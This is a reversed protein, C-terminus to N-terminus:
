FGKRMAVWFRTSRSQGSLLDPKPGFPVAASASASLGHPGQWNLGVGASSLNASNDSSGTFTNNKNVLVYGDNVFVVAQWLGPLRFCFDHRLEMTVLMGEDGGITGADYGSVSGPGGIYFKEAPDLNSTAFQGSAGVFLSNGPTLPQLRSLSLDLRGYNGQTDAEQADVQRAISNDFSVQGGTLTLGASSIGWDDRYSGIFSLNLADIHRDDRSGTSGIVDSLRMYDYSLQMDLRTRASLVMPQRVLFEGTAANGHADLQKLSDGLRYNLFSGYMGLVTGSGNVVRQYGLREYNLGSGTTLATINLQDGCGTPNNITLHASGRVRGTYRDGYDDVGVSGTFRPQPKANVTLDSTRPKEGPRLTSQATLGPVENLLLLSRNLPELSVPAGSQLPALTADLLSSHVRSHNNLIIHDYRAELVAITLTANKITQAPIYARDLPYGHKQYFRTIRQALAEARALNLERKEGSAVLAHLRSTPFLTNGTIRIHEVRFTNTPPIRGTKPRRIILAPASAPAPPPPPPMEKLFQGAGQPPAVAWARLPSFGWLAIMISLAVPTNRRLRVLLFILRGSIRTM